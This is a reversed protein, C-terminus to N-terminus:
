RQEVPTPFLISFREEAILNVPDILQFVDQDDLCLKGLATQGSTRIQDQKLDDQFERLGMREALVGFVRDVGGLVTKLVAIRSSYRPSSSGAATLQALDLVPVATGRFLLIGAYWSPSDPMNHLRVRPLVEVVDKSEFAYRNTGTQCMILLKM